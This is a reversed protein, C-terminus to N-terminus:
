RLSMTDLQAERQPSIVGPVWDSYPLFAWVMECVADVAFRLIVGVGAELSSEMISLTASVLERQWAKGRHLHM